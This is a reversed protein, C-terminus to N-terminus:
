KRHKQFVIIFVCHLYLHIFFPNLIVKGEVNLQIVSFIPQGHAYFGCFYLGSDFLDVQKIKLFITSINTSM